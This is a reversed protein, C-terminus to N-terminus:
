IRIDKTRRSVKLAKRTQLVKSFGENLMYSFLHNGLYLMCGEIISVRCADNRSCWICSGSPVYIDDHDKDLM